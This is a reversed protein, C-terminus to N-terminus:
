IPDETWSNFFYFHWIQFSEWSVCPFDTPIKFSMEVKTPDSKAFIKEKLFFPKVPKAVIDSKM